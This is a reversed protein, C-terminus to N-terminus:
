RICLNTTKLRVEESLRYIENINRPKKFKYRKFRNLNLIKNLYKQIDLYEIDGNLFHNVLQDNAAVLITEFLSISKPIKKIINLSPFKRLDPKKLNM